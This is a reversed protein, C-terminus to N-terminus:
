FGGAQRGFPSGGGFVNIAGTAAGAAAPAAAAGFIAPMAYPAALSAAFGAAGLATNLWNSGGGGGGFGEYTTNTTSTGGWNNGGVIGYYRSLLDNARVDNRRFQEYQNAIDAQSGSRELEGALGLQRLLDSQGTLGFAGSSQALNALQGLSGTGALQSNSLALGLDGAAGLGQLGQQYGSTLQDGALGLAQQYADGRIGGAIDAVRDAAARRAIAQAAGARSSGLNGSLSAAVDIGPLTQEELNRVVDRSAADIQAQLTPDDMFQGTMGSIMAARLAPDSAGAGLQALSGMTTAAGRQGPLQGQAAAMNPGLMGLMAPNQLGYLGLANQYMAQVPSINQNAINILAEQTPALGAQIPGQYAPTGQQERYLRAAENFINRLQAAQPGWPEQVTTQETPLFQEQSGSSGGGTIGGM